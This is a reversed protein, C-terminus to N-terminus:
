AHIHVVPIDGFVCYIEDFNLWGSCFLSFCDFSRARALLPFIYMM